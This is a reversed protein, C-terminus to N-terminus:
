WSALLYWFTVCWYRLFIPLDKGTYRIELLHELNTRKWLEEIDWTFPYIKLFVGIKGTNKRKLLVIRKEASIISNWVGSIEMCFCVESYRIWLVVGLPQKWYLVLPLNLLTAFIKPPTRKHINECFFEM